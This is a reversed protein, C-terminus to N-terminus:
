EEVREGVIRLEAIEFLPYGEPPMVFRLYRYANGREKAFVPLTQLEATQAAKTETLLTWRKVDNSGYVVSQAVRIPFGDRAQLRFAETKVKFRSGFDMTFSKEGKLPNGWTMPDGDSM